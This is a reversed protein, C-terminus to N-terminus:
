QQLWFWLYQLSHQCATKCHWKVRQMRIQFVLGPECFSLVLYSHICIMFFCKKLDIVQQIWVQALQQKYNVSNRNKRVGTAGSETTKVVSASHSDGQLNNVVGVQVDEINTSASGTQPPSRAHCLNRLSLFLSLSWFTTTYHLADIHKHRHTYM